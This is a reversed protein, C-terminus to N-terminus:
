RARGLIPPRPKPFSVDPPRLYLPTLPEPQQDARWVLRAAALVGRADPASGPVLDIGARGSLAVVAASAANGAVLLPADGILGVLYAHLEEPPIAAPVAIPEGSAILQVYFDSRRSDIAVLVSRRKDSDALSAAVAAFSTIGITEAGAALAIGQAAALGVRIGTFGGPGVCAAVIDIDAPSIPGVAAGIIPLLAEGHGHRM